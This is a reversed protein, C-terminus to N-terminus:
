KTIKHGVSFMSTLSEIWIELALPFIRQNVRHYTYRAASYLRGFIFDNYKFRCVSDRMRAISKFWSHHAQELCLCSIGSSRGLSKKQEEEEVHLLHVPHWCNEADTGYSLVCLKRLRVRAQFTRKLVDAVDSLVEAVM